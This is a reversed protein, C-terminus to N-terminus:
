PEIKRANNWLYKCLNQIPRAIKDNRLFHSIMPEDKQPIPTLIVKDEYTNINLKFLLENKDIWRPEWHGRLVPNKQLHEYAEKFTKETGTFVFRDGVRKITQLYENEKVKGNDDTIFCDDFYHYDSIGWMQEQSQNVIEAMSAFAKDNFFSFFETEQSFNRNSVDRDMFAKLLPIENELSNLQEKASQLQKSTYELLVEPNKPLYRIDRSKATEKILGKETLSDLINYLTSRKVGARKALQALNKPPTKLIETYVKYEETSIGVRDLQM